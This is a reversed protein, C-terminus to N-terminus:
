RIPRGLVFGESHWDYSVTVNHSTALGSIKWPDGADDITLTYGDATDIEVVFEYYSKRALAAISFTVM